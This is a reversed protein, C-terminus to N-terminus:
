RARRDLIRDGQIQALAAVLAVEGSQAARKGSLLPRRQIGQRSMQRVIDADRLGFAAIEQPQLQRLAPVRDVDVATGQLLADADRWPRYKRGLTGEAVAQPRGGADSGV